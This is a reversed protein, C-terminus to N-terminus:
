TLSNILDSLKIINRNCEEVTITNYDPLSEIIQIVSDYYYPNTPDYIRLIDKMTEEFNKNGKLYDLLKYKYRSDQSLLYIFDEVSSCYYEYVRFYDFFIPDLGGYKINFLNKTRIEAGNIEYKIIKQFHATELISMGLCFKSLTAIKQTYEIMDINFDQDWFANFFGIFLRSYLYEKDVGSYSYYGKKVKMRKQWLIWIWGLGLFFILILSM